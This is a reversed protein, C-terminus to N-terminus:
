VGDVAPGLGRLHESADAFTLLLAEQELALVGTPRHRPEIPVGDVRAIDCIRLERSRSGEPDHLVKATM